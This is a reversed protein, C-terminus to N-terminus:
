SKGKPQGSIIIKPINCISYTIIHEEILLLIIRPQDCHSLSLPSKATLNKRDKRYRVCPFFQILFFNSPRRQNCNPRRANRENKKASSYLLPSHHSPAICTSRGGVKGVNNHFILFVFYSPFLFFFRGPLFRAIMYMSFFFHTTYFRRSFDVIEM